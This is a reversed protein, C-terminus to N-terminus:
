IAQSRSRGCQIDTRVKPSSSRIPPILGDSSAFLVTPQGFASVNFVSMHGGSDSRFGVVNMTLWAAIGNARPDEHDYKAFTGTPVAGGNTGLYPVDFNSFDNPWIYVKPESGGLFNWQSGTPRDLLASYQANGDEDLYYGAQGYIMVEDTGYETVPRRGFFGDDRVSIGLQGENFRIRIDGHGDPYVAQNAPPAHRRITFVQADATSQGLAGGTLDLISGDNLVALSIVGSGTGTNVTVQYTTSSGAVSAISVDSLSGNGTVAFDTVDVGIVPKSFDVM